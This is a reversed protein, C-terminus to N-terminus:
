FLFINGTIGETKYVQQVVSMYPLNGATIVDSDTKKQNASEKQRPFFFVKEHWICFFIRCM